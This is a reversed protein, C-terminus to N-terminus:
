CGGDVEKNAALTSLAPATLKRWGNSKSNSVTAKSAREVGVVIPFDALFSIQSHQSVAAFSDRRASNGSRRSFVPFTTSIPGM